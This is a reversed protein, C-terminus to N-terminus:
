AAALFEEYFAGRKHLQGPSRLDKIKAPSLSSARPTTERSPTLTRHEDAHAARACNISCVTAQHYFNPGGTSTAPSTPASRGGASVGPM